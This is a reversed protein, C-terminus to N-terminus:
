RAPADLVDISLGSANVILRDLRAVYALSYAGSPFDALAVTQAGTATDWLRVTKDASGTALRDAGVFALSWVRQKHGSLRHLVEGSEPDRLAAAFDEGGTALWRGDPSYGIAWVGGDHATLSARQSGDDVNWLILRGDSQGAALTRGSADFAVKSVGGDHELKRVLDGSEADWVFVANRTSGAVAFRGDPSFGCGNSGGEFGALDFVVAGTAIDWVRVTDDWNCGILRRGDPSFGADNLDSELGGDFRRAVIGRQTDWIAIAGDPGNMALFAGDPSVPMAWISGAREGAASFERGQAADWLRLTGDGSVSAVRSGDPASAVSTVTRAHGLFTEDVLGTELDWRKISGDDAGTYLAGAADFAVSFVGGRHGHLERVLDGSDVNWVRPLGSKSAAAILAGDRSFAIDDIAAYAAVDDYDFERPPAARDRGWVAVRWGWTGAALHDGDPSYAVVVIPKAGFETRHLESGDAARWESVFGVVGREPTRFWSGFAVRRGDPSFAVDALGQGGSEGRWLQEGTAANWVRLTGDRAATAIRGGDPSFAVGYVAGEHGTVRGTEALTGADFLAVDDGTAVAITAGDPSYALRRPAADGLDAAALSSDVRGDLHRWEWARADAPAADLWRRAEGSDDLRLSANAAAVAAFYLEGDPTARPATACAASAAALGALVLIRM